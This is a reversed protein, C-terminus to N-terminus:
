NSCAAVSAIYEIWMEGIKHPAFRDLVKVANSSCRDLLDADEAFRSLANAVSMYDGREALLGNENNHILLKAGGPSCDTSVVPLGVSMAELLANPIGEYDSTIVFIGDNYIKSMPNQVVGMLHVKDEIGLSRVMEKVYELEGSGYMKLIYEPHSISFVQFAKLMVDMRKQINQFRGVSVVTKLRNKATVVPIDNDTKFIPNPIVAGRGQLKKSYFLSADKTQFVAGSSRNIVFRMFRDKLGKGFTRNPDGRESMISPVGTIWSAIKAYFNPFMTFALIVDVKNKKVFSCINTIFVLHRNKKPVGLNIIKIAPNFHQKHQSIDQPITNLNLITVSNGKSVLTNTVFNMMKEAGGYGISITIFLINM